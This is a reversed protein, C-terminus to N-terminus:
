ANPPASRADALESRVLELLRGIWNRGREGRSTWFPSEMAGPYVIRGSGTSVLFGGLEPHQTFKATLIRHMVAIRRMPWDDPQGAAQALQEAEYPTPANAVAEAIEGVTALSWYAQHVTPYQIGALEVPAPYHNALVVPHPPGPWDGKPFVWAEVTLTPDESETPGDSSDRDRERYEALRRRTDEFYAIAANRSEETVQEGSNPHRQGIETILELVPDDRHDMDGLVFVRHHEPIANYAAQVELRNVETPDDLFKDIAAVCRDSSTPRANLGEILDAVEGVLADGDIVVNPDAFNWYALLHASARAGPELSTAVWGSAIKARLGELDVPGWCDIMGDAYVFLDALYYDRGNRIFIHRWTGPITEGDVVRYTRNKGIM